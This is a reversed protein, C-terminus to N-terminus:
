TNLNTFLSMKKNNERSDTWSTTVWKICYTVVYIPDSSRPRITNKKKKKTKKEVILFYQNIKYRYSRILAHHSAENPVGASVWVM